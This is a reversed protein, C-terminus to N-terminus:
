EVTLIAIRDERIFGDRSFDSEMLHANPDRPFVLIQPADKKSSRSLIRAYSLNDEFSTGQREPYIGGYIRLISPDFSCSDDCRASIDRYMQMVKDSLATIREERSLCLFETGSYRILQDEGADLRAKMLNAILSVLENGADPGLVRNTEILGQIHIYLILREYPLTYLGDPYSKSLLQDELYDKRWLGTLSDTYLSNLKELLENEGSLPEDDGEDSSNGTEINEIEEELRRIDTTLNTIVPHHLSNSLYLALAAIYEIYQNLTIARDGTFPSLQQQLVENLQAQTFFAYSQIPSDSLEEKRINYGSIIATCRSGILYMRNAIGKLIKRAMGHVGQYADDPISPQMLGALYKMSDNKDDTAIGLLEKETRPTLGLEEYSLSKFTDSCNLFRSFFDAYTNGDYELTITDDRVPEIFYRIYLDLVRLVTFLPHKMYREPWRQSLKKQAYSYIKDALQAGMPLLSQQIYHLEDLRNKYSALEGHQDNEKQQSRKQAEDSLNKVSSDITCNTGTISIIQNLSDVLRGNFSTYASLLFGTISRQLLYSQDMRIFRGDKMPKDLLGNMAGTFGHPPRTKKYYREISKRITASHTIAPLFAATFENIEKKAAAPHLSPRYQIDRLRDYSQIYKLFAMLANYEATSFLYYEEDLQTTLVPEVIRCWQWTRRLLDRLTDGRLRHSFLTITRYSLAFSTLAIWNQLPNRRSEYRYVDAAFTEDDSNGEKEGTVRDRVRDLLDDLMRKKVSAPFRSGTIINIEKEEGATLHAQEKQMWETFLSVSTQTSTYARRDTAQRAGKMSDLLRTFRQIDTSHTGSYKDVELFYDDLYKKDTSM